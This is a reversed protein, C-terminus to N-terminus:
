GRCMEALASSPIAAVTVAACVFTVSFFRWGGVLCLSFASDAIFLSLTTDVECILAAQWRGATKLGDAHGTYRRRGRRRASRFGTLRRPDPWRAPSQWWRRRWGPRIDVPRHHGGPASKDIAAPGPAGRSVTFADQQTKGIQHLLVAFLQRLQFGELLPFDM